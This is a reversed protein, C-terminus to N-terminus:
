TGTPVGTLYPPARLAHRGRDSVLVPRRRVGDDDIRVTVQLGEIRVLAVLNEILRALGTDATKENRCYPQLICVSKEFQASPVLIDETRETNMGM